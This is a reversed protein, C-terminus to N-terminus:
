LAILVQSASSNCTESTQGAPCSYLFAASAKGIGFFLFSGSVMLFVFFYKFISINAVGGFSLKKFGELEGKFSLKEAELKRESKVREREFKGHAKSM